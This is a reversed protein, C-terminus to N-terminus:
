RRQLVSPGRVPEPLEDTECWGTPTADLTVTVCGAPDREM